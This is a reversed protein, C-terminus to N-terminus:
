KRAIKFTHGGIITSVDMSEAWWPYVKNHAYYHMAGGTPDDTYGKYAFVAQEVAEGWAASEKDPRASQIFSFQKRQYVVECPTNPYRKSNVRNMIVHAVAMQGTISEGRSEHYVATAICDIQNRPIDATPTALTAIFAIIKLM